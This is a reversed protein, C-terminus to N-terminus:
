RQVPLDRRGGAVPAADGHGIRRHLPGTDVVHQKLGLADAPLGFALGMLETFYLVPLRRATKLATNAQGQRLDLNVQCLQCAVVIAQADALRAQEAIRASLGAVIDSRSAALGGGCCETKFNWDIVEAGLAALIEDMSRPHEPHDFGTVEPPRVLACGYYAVVRLGALPGKVERQIADLGVQDRLLGLVHHVATGGPYREGLVTGVLDALANDVVMAADASKLRRFCFPCPTVLESM